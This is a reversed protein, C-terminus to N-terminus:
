ILSLNQTEIENGVAKDEDGRYQVGNHLFTSARGTLLLCLISNSVNGKCSALHGVDELDAVQGSYHVM